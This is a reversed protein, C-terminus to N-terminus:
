NDDESRATGSASLTALRDAWQAVTEEVDDEHFHGSNDACWKRMEAIIQELAAHRSM